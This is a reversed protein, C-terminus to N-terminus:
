AANKGLASVVGGIVGGSTGRGRGEIPHGNNGKTGSRLM